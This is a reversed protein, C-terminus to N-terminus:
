QVSLTEVDRTKPATRMALAMMVAGAGIGERGLEESGTVAM